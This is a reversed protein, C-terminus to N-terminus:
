PIGRSSVGQMLKFSLTNKNKKGKKTTIMIVGNSARSGYLATTSADKLVTMTEIDEANLNAIGGEYPVNDVVYLPSSSANVSGFGRIRIGPSSGPSGGAASTQVGPASGPLANTVNTLPRNKFDEASITAASGTFDGKKVTGYAVVVVEDMQSQGPKLQVSINSQSGIAVDMTEYGVYSFELTKASASVEIRFVGDAGTVVGTRTGKITVSVGAVPAGKEDTVTGTVTKNQAMLSFASLFIVLFMSLMKRM